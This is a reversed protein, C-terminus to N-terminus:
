EFINKFILNKFNKVFQNSNLKCTYLTRRILKKLIYKTEKVSVLPVRLISVLQDDLKYCFIKNFTSFVLKTFLGLLSM